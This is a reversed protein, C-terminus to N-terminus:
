WRARWPRTDVHVFPGHAATSGYIGIGGIFSRLEATKSLSELLGAFAVADDRSVVKDKNFDDMVGNGDKDLFIDAARGWQHLSYKTDDLQRNYFPTRYGSMVFIDDADWGRAELHRGIAELLYILGEDLVLYKPYGSKQKTLFDKVRFNPSLKTDENDKTVEIFAKPAVYIPNGKLPTDPYFGIQFNNLVGKRVQTSPVMVFVDFDVVTDRAPNRVKVEYMGPKVPAEWTWRNPSLATLAGQPADISYLRAPPATVALPIKERPAAFFAGEGYSYTLGRVRLREAAPVDDAAAVASSLAILAFLARLGCSRSTIHTMGM